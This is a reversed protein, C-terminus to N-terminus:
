RIQIEFLTLSGNRPGITTRSAGHFNWRAIGADPNANAGTHCSAAKFVLQRDAGDRGRLVVSRTPGGTQGPRNKGWRRVTRTWGGHRCRCLVGLFQFCEETLNGVM